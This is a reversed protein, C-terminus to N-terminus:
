VETWPLKAGSADHFLTQYEKFKRDQFHFHLIQPGTSQIMTSLSQLWSIFLCKSRPLFTIVFRSLANFLLSMVKSVFTQITLATTKGTTMYLHLSNSSSLRKLRTRSQAVGYAAAWWARGDRPNELCSCQLLNGNGEGNHSLSFHFQLRETVDSEYRGWPSYGVLNRWGHSKRPLLVPYSNPWLFHQASFFQNKWITTSSLVQSDRPCCPSWVTLGLPFWGQINMPLVSVSVLAGISQGGSAFLQSM